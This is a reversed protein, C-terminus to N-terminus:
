AVGGKTTTWAVWETAPAPKTDVYVDWHATMGHSPHEFWLPQTPRDPKAGLQNKAYEDFGKPSGAVIARPLWLRQHWHGMILKDFPTGLAASQGSRKVEGRMIPGLSGIIGDGGKVGLMDGHLLLYRTNYVCFNVDNSPRIDFQIRRDDAFHRVLMQYILWDFNKKYYRKFEPKATGRGHNGAVCPVYLRGFTDAFRHLIGALWDVAKISAPIAEEEDTAKLEPHLGGSVNDGGLCVVAGPYAGAIHHHCCLQVVKTAYRELREEAVAMNYENFGNVEEREVREGLHLDTIVTVPVEPTPKGKARRTPECMWPPLDRVTSAIDGVIERIIDAADADRHADKLAKRLALLEDRQRTTTRDPIVAPKPRSGLPRRGVDNAFGRAKAMKLRAYFQVRCLGSAAIADGVVAHQKYLMATAMLEEDTLPTGRM